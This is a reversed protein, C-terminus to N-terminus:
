CCRFGGRSSGGFHANQRDRESAAEWESQANTEEILGAVVANVRIRRPALEFALQRTLALIAGGTM